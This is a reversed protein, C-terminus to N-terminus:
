KAQLRGHRRQRKVQVIVAQDAKVPQSQSGAQAVYLWQRGRGHARAGASIRTMDHGESAGRSERVVVTLYKSASKFKIFTPKNITKVRFTEHIYIYMVHATQQTEQKTDQKSSERWKWGRVGEM